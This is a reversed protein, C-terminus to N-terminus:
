HFATMVEKTKLLNSLNEFSKNGEVLPESMTASSGTYKWYLGPSGGGGNDNWVSNWYKFATKCDHLNKVAKKMIKRINEREDEM